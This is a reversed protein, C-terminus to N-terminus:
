RDASAAKSGFRFESPHGSASGRRWSTTPSRASRYTMWSRRSWDPNAMMAEPVEVVEPIAGAPVGSSAYVRAHRGDALIVPLVVADHPLVKRAIASIRDFVEPLDGTDTLAALLEDLLELNAARARLEEHSRAHEALRQHSLALAVYDAIRRAIVLDIASYLTPERSTFNLAGLIQDDLRIAIRLSSRGGAKVSELNRELPNTTLDDVFRYLWGETQARPFPMPGGQPYSSPATQVYLDIHSLDEDLIGLSAFDHRLVDKTIASLRDFIERVDLVRFLAPLLKEVAELRRLLELESTRSEPPQLFEVVRSAISDLIAVQDEGGSVAESLSVVLTVEGGTGAVPLTIVEKVGSEERIDDPLGTHLLRSEILGLPNSELASAL